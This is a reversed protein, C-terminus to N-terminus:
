GEYKEVIRAPRMHADAPDRGFEELARRQRLLDWYQDLEVRINSLREREADSPANHQYLRQEEDVLDRIHQLVSRDGAQDAASVPRNAM